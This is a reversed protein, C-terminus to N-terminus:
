YSSSNLAFSNLNTKPRNRRNCVNHFVIKSIIMLKKSKTTDGSDAHQIDSRLQGLTRPEDIFTGLKLYRIFMYLDPSRLYWCFNTHDVIMDYGFTQRPM